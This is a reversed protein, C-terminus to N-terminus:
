RFSPEVPIIVRVRGYGVVISRPRRVEEESVPLVLDRRGAAVAVLSRRSVTGPAFYDSHGHATRLDNPMGKAKVTALRRIGAVVTPAAGLLEPGGYPVLDDPADLVNLGNPKLGTDEFKRFPVGPSGLLAVDDVACTRLLAHGALTSGYSHAWVTSHLPVDRAADLGTLFAALEDAHDRAITPRLVSTAPRGIGSWQPAPYGLWSVVAVDDGDPAISRAESRMATFQRDYRRLDGQVTTTLGGVFTAVHKARDVDGVSVVATVLGDEEGLALLLRPVGDDQSIVDRVARLAAVRRETTEFAWRGPPGGIKNRRAEALVRDASAEARALLALNAQHRAWAPVGDRPGVWEPHDRIARGKEEATLGRWWAANAFTSAPDVYEGIRLPPPTPLSMPRGASAPTRAWPDAAGALRSSAEHDAQQAVSEAQVLDREIEERLQGERRAHHAALVPDACAPPRPLFLQGEHNLWGGAGAAQRDAHRVLELCAQMREALHTLARATEALRNAIDSLVQVTEVTRAFAALAAPGSWAAGSPRSALLETMVRQVRQREAELRDRAERVLAPRFCRIDAVTLESM